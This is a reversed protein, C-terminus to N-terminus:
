PEQVRKLFYAKRTSIYMKSNLGECVVFIKVVIKAFFDNHFDNGMYLITSFIKATTFFLQLTYPCHRSKQLKLQLTRPGKVSFFYFRGMIHYFCFLFIFLCTFDIFHYWSVLSGLHLQTAMVPVM